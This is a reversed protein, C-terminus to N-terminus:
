SLTITWNSKSAKLNLWEVSTNGDNAGSSTEFAKKVAALSLTATLNTTNTSLANVISEISVKTLKSSDKFNINSGIIGEFTINELAKCGLFNSNSYVTAEASLIKDITRLKECSNLMDGTGNTAGTLTITGIRTFKSCFYMYQVNKGINSDDFIIGLEDFWEVLDVEVQNWRFLMYANNPRIDYKPKFTEKTWGKGSFANQYDIRNGNQQYNDWFEDYQSKKGAEFVKEENEAIIQLKEAISM